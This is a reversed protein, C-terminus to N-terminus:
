TPVGTEEDDLWPLRFEEPVEVNATIRWQLEGGMWQAQGRIHTVFGFSDTFGGILDDGVRRMWGTQNATM